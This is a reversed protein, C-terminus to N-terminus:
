TSLEIINFVSMISHLWRWWGSGSSNKKEFKFETGMLYSGIIGKGVWDRAIVMWSKIEIIEVVRLVVEHLHFLVTNRDKQSALKM